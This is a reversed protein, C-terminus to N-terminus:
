EGMSQALLEAIDRVALRSAGEIMKAADEFRPTEYPCAVALIDAQANVAERVRWESMRVGAKEWQFGDLWMGGGGGGCCLSNKGSHTMEVRKVGPIADLLARPEDFVGNARGLYCADHYAVVSPVENTLMPGLDDLRDALFQVYHQVPYQIGLRPYENALANYAHPDATVILDFEYKGFAKANNEALMEFLGPEGALRQSDGDSGEEPGLIAFDIGLASLVKALARSAQQVRNHYSGYDGVFWLVDVPRKATKLVPVPPELGEAWDARKRPSEGLPNGYRQSNALADQLEAPVKGALVLEEKTRTMLGATVPIDAPCAETCAYCSVCMWASDSDLVKEFRDARIHGIIRHPPALMLYGFPCVGSCTGCQLCARIREGDPLEQLSSYFEESVSQSGTSPPASVAAM